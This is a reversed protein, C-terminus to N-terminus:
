AAKTEPAPFDGQAIRAQEDREIVDFRESIPSVLYYNVRAVSETAPEIADPRLRFGETLPRAGPLAGRGKAHRFMEGSVIKDIEAPFLRGEIMTELMGWHIMQPIVGTPMAVAMQDTCDLFQAYAEAAAKIAIGFETMAKLRAEAHEKMVALQAQRANADAAALARADQQRALRLAAALQQCKDRAAALQKDLTTVRLAAGQRELAADLAATAIHGELNARHQEAAALKEAVAPAIPRHVKADHSMKKARMEIAALISPNLSVFNRFVDDRTLIDFSASGRQKGDLSFAEHLMDIETESMPQILALVESTLYSDTLEDLRELLHLRDGAKMEVTKLVYKAHAIVLMQFRYGCPLCAVHDLTASM